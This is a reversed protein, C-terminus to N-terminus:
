SYYDDVNVHKDEKKTKAEMIALRIALYALLIFVFIYFEVRTYVWVLALLVLLSRIYKWYKKLFEM